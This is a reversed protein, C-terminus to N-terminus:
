EIKIEKPKTKQLLQEAVLAEIKDRLARQLNRAGWRPDYTDQIIKVVFEPEISLAVGYQGQVDKVLQGLYGLAIRALAPKELPRYVVVADFRNLFEPSYLRNKVLYDILDKKITPNHINNYILDAGANSTAVVILNKCDVRQGMGDMFYGEDLITLFINILDKHAKELEDLLLLGYPHERIMKPMLGPEGEGGILKPIDLIAQFQSMDLRLLEAKAGFFVENVVKATETKGVGTPGLFLFSGLPRKSSRSLVFSKRLASSVSLVAEEQQIIRSRLVAEITLLKQKIDDNLDVPIHTKETLYDLVWQKTIRKVKQQVAATMIDDLTDLTKEPQPLSTILMESKELTTVLAEYTVVIGLKREARIASDLLVSKTDPLSLEEVSVKEFSQQFLSLSQLYKQYAFPTTTAIFHIEQEAAIQDFVKTLDIRGKESSVYRDIDYIVLIVSGAKQAEKIIKKFLEERQLQDTTQALLRELDLIRVRKYTLPEVVRGSSINDTLARIIAQKGVGAEGVIIANAHASKILAQQIAEIQTDRGYLHFDSSAAPQPISYLDLTPTYGATWDHGLPTITSLKEWAWWPQSTEHSNKKEFWKEIESQDKQDEMHAKVFAERDLERQKEQPVKVLGRIYLFPMMLHVVIFGFPAVITLLVVAVIYTGLMGLRVTAGVWRSILNMSLRSGLDSLSVGTSKDDVIRKWPLLLTRLMQM